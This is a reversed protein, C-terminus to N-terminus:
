FDIKRGSKECAYVFDVFQKARRPSRVANMLAWREAYAELEAVPTQLEYDKALQRVISLYEAKDTSSFMVTLGFRDSLSLQEEMSDSPHVSNERDSFSEKVLHRRNSTAVIMVNKCDTVSGEIAAKLSSTKEDQESLTLDDIFIIFKLPLTAVQRKIKSIEILNEKVIEILRLGHGSYANLMAHVTSSKGTGRDGYLLMHSYPLGSLFDKINNEIAAKESGYNKLSSLTIPDTYAVPLLKSDVYAFAKAGIFIGYGNRGYYEELDYILFEGTNEFIPLPRGLRFYDTDSLKSVASLISQVDELYAKVLYKSPTKGQACTISFANEDKLILNQVASLLREEANASFAECLMRNLNEATEDGCYDLLSSILKNYALNTLVKLNNTYKNM